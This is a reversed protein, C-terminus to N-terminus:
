AYHDVLGEDVSTEDPFSDVTVRGDAHSRFVLLDSLWGERRELFRRPVEDLVLTFVAPLRGVREPPM